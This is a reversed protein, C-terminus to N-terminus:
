RGRTDILTAGRSRAAVVQLALGPAVLGAARAAAVLANAQALSPLVAFGTPGWSSQGVAAGPAGQPTAANEAMWQLLRGVAPSTYCGGQAPAFHEGLVRQVHSVGAAFPAFEAGAAGPLVRMLVQHCIDAAQAQPLPPLAAIAQKERQGSLGKLGLDQV